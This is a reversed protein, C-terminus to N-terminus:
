LRIAPALMTSVADLMVSPHVPKALIEFEHGERRAHEVLTEVSPQGSFLLIACEPYNERLGMALEIGNMNPLMVDLIALDPTWWVLLQIAAEASYAIRISYGHARLIQGLSDAVVREDEVILIRREGAYGSMFDAERLPSDTFSVV